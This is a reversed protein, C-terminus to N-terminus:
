AAKTTKTKTTDADAAVIGVQITPLVLFATEQGTITNVFRYAPSYVGAPLLVTSTLTGTVFTTFAKTRFQNDEPKCHISNLKAIMLETKVNTTNVGSATFTVKAFDGVATLTIADGLFGSFPPLLPVSGNPNIQLFKTALMVFVMNATPSYTFGSVPNTWVHTDAYNQWAAEQQVTLSKFTTAAKTFNARVSKQAASNADKIMCGTRLINGSITKSFVSTGAKGRVDQLNVSYRVKAM